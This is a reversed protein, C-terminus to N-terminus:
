GLSLGSHIVAVREGFLARFRDLVQPTLGIEPILLLAQRGLTVADNILKEFVSTKGSGTVGHLLFVEPQRAKMPELVQQRANEQQASLTISNVDIHGGASDDVRRLVEQDYEEAAGAAVLRKLVAETFGCM